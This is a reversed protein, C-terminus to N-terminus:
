DGAASRADLRGSLEGAYGFVDEYGYASMLIPYFAEDAFLGEGDAAAFREDKAVREFNRAFVEYREGPSKPVARRMAFVPIEREPHPEGPLAGVATLFERCLTVANEAAQDSGQLGCEVEVVDRREILRGESFGDTEALADVSLYPVVARTIADVSDCLAFPEAYSQTSHLSFVTCDGLERLLEHALRREHTDAEPDGPFARNLDEAVYRLNRAYAEENAVVLKVPREVDPDEHLLAEVARPGCPEDGHIGGVIAVEPEGEGLQEVRM